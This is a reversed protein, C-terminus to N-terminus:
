IGTVDICLVQLWGDNEERDNNYGVGFDFRHDVMQRIDLEVKGLPHRAASINMVYEEDYLLPDVGSGVYRWAENTRMGGFATAYKRGATYNKVGDTSEVAHLVCAPTSSAYVPQGAANYVALGPGVPPLQQDFIFYEITVPNPNVIWFTFYWVGSSRRVSKLAVFQTLHHVAVIPSIGTSTVVAISADSVDFDTTSTVTGKSALQLNFYEADILVSGFDNITLLGVPM